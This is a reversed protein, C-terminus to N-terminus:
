PLEGNPKAEAIAILLPTAAALACVLIAFIRRSRVM